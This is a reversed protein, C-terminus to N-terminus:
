TGPGLSSYMGAMPGVEMHHCTGPNEKARTEEREERGIIPRYVSDSSEWCKAEPGCEVHWCGVAYEGNPDGQSNLNVLGLHFEQSEWGGDEGM